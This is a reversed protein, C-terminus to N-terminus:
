VGGPDLLLLKGAPGLTGTLKLGSVTGTSAAWSGHACGM